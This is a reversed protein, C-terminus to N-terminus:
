PCSSAGACDLADPTPDIGCDNPPPLPGATGFLSNLIAVGDAIDIAGDDNADAADLCSPVPGGSFLGNLLFIADAINLSGDLNVNGREFPPEVVESWSYTLTLDVLPSVGYGIVGPPSEQNILESFVPLAITGAGTWAALAAPDVVVGVGEDIDLLDAALPPGANPETFSFGTETEILLGGFSIDISLQTFVTVAVGSGTTTYGAFLTNNLLLTVQTLTRTGGLDDFGAVPIAQTQAPGFGGLLVTQEVEGSGGAFLSSPLGGACFLLAVLLPLTARSSVSM